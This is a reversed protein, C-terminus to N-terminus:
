LEGAGTERAYQEELQRWAAQAQERAHMAQNRWMGMEVDQAYKEQQETTIAPTVNKSLM